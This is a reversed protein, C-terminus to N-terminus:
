CLIGDILLFVAINDLTKEQIDKNLKLDPYARQYLLLNDTENKNRGILDSWNYPLFNCCRKFIKKNWSDGINITQNLIDNYLVKKDINNLSLNEMSASKMFQELLDNIEKKWYAFWCEKGSFTDKDENQKSCSIDNEIIEKELCFLLNAEKFTFEYTSFLSDM